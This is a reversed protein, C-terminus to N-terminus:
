LRSYGVALLSLAGKSGNHELGDGLETLNAVRAIAGIADRDQNM